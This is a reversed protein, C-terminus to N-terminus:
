LGVLVGVVGVLGIFQLPTCGGERYLCQFKREELRVVEVLDYPRQRQQHKNRMVLDRLEFQVSFGLWCGGDCCLRCTPAHFM